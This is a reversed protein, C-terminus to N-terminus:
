EERIRLPMTITFVSGTGYESELFINGNM